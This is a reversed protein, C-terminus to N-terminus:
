NNIGFEVAHSRVYTYLLETLDDSHGGSYFEQDLENLKALDFDYDLEFMAEPSEPLGDPFAVAVARTWLEATRTAGIDMLAQGMFLATEGSPNSFYQEFGGNNVETELSSIASFVKQPHSQKAFDVKGFQTQSSESLEVLFENKDM